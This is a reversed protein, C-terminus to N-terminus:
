RSLALTALEKLKGDHPQPGFPFLIVGRNGKRAVLYRLAGNGGRMLVAEDGVDKLVERQPYVAEPVATVAADYEAASALASVGLYLRGNDTAFNACKGGAGPKAGFAVPQVHTATVKEVDAATLLACSQARAATVPAILAALLIVLASLRVM